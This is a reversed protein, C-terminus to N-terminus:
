SLHVCWERAVSGVFAGSKAKGVGL